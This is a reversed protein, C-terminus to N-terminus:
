TGDVIRYIPSPMPGTAPEEDTANKAAKLLELPQWAAKNATEMLGHVLRATETSPSEEDITSAQLNAIATMKYATKAALEASLSMTQITRMKTEAMSDIHPQISTPLEAIAMKAQVLKTVAVEVMERKKPNLRARITGESIKYEKALANASADGRYLRTEIDSWQEATLKNAMRENYNRIAFCRM